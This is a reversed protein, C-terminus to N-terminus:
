DIGGAPGAIRIFFLRPRYAGSFRSGLDKLSQPMSLGALTMESFFSTKFANHEPRDL